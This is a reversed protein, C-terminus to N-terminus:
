RGKLRNEFTEKLKELEVKREQLVKERRLPKLLEKPTINRKLIKGELNMLHCVFFAAIDENHEKRWVYGDWLQMFECPQLQEFEQPKLNLPGYALPEAWELWDNM